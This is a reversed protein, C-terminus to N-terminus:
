FNITEIEGDLVYTFSNGCLRHVNEVISNPHILAIQIQAAEITLLQKKM